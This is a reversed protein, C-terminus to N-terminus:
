AQQLLKSIGDTSKKLREFFAVVILFDHQQRERFEAPPHLFVAAATGIM